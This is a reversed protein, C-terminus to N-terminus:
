PRIDRMWSFIVSLFHCHITGPLDANDVIGRIGPAASVTGMESELPQGTDFGDRQGIRVAISDFLPHRFDARLPMVGIVARHDFPFLRIHDNEAGANRFAPKLLKFEGNAVAAVDEAFFRENGRQLLGVPEHREAVFAADPDGDGM